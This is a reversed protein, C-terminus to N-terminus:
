RAAEEAHVHRRLGRWHHNRRFPNHKEHSTEIIAGFSRGAFPSDLTFFFMEWGAQYKFTEIKSRSFSFRGADTTVSVRNPAANIWDPLPQPADIVVKGGELHLRVTGYDPIVYSAGQDDYTVINGRGLDITTVDGQVTIWAPYAEPAYIGKREGEISVSLDGSRNDRTVHTKYSWFDGMLLAANDLRARAALRLPPSATSAAIM